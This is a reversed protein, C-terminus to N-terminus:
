ANVIFLLEQNELLDVCQGVSQFLVEPVLVITQAICAASVRCVSHIVELAQDMLLDAIVIALNWM